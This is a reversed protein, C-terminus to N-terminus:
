GSAMAIFTDDGEDGGFLIHREQGIARRNIDDEVRNTDRGSHVDALNQLGM